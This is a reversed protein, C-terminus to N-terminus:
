ANKQSCQRQTIFKYSGNGVCANRHLKQVFIKRRETETTHIFIHIRTM